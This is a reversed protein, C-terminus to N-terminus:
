MEELVGLHGLPKMLLIVTTYYCVIWVLALILHKCSSCNLPINEM